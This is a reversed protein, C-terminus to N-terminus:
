HRFSSESGMEMEIQQQRRRLIDVQSVYYIYFPVNTQSKVHQAISAMRGRYLMVHHIMMKM